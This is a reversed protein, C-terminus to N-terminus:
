HVGLRTAIAKLGRLIGSVGGIMMMIGIPFFWLLDIGVITLILYLLISLLAGSISPKPNSYRSSSTNWNGSQWTYYRYRSSGSNTQWQAFPDADESYDNRGSYSYSNYSSKEGGYRDYEARKGEDGLVSYAEGIKKFMNEAESNGANRDPHYQFAKARYAKKIEEASATKEVGLIEYYDKEAM